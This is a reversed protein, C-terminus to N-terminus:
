VASTISYQYCSLFGGIMKIERGWERERGGGGERERETEGEGGRERERELSYIFLYIKPFFKGKVAVNKLTTEKSCFETFVTFYPCSSAVRQSCKPFLLFRIFCTQM